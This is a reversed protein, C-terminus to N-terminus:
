IGYHKQGTVLWSGRGGPWRAVTRAESEDDDDDDDDDYIIIVMIIILGRILLKVIFMPFLL